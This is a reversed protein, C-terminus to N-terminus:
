ITRNVTRYVVDYGVGCGIRCVTRYMAGGITLMEYALSIRQHANGTLVADAWVPDSSCVSDSAVNDLRTM